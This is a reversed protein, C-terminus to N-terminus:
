LHHIEFPHVYQKHFFLGAVKIGILFNGKAEASRAFSSTKLLGSGESVLVCAPVSCLVRGTVTALGCPCAFALLPIHYLWMM